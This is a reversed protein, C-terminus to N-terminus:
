ARAEEKKMERFWDPVIEDQVDQKNRNQWSHLKRNKRFQEEALDIEDITLLGKRYWNNLIGKVYAWTSQNQDLAKHMAKLVLDSGIKNCWDKYEQLRHNHPDGFYKCFFKYTYGDVSNITIDNEKTQDQKHKYLPSTKESVVQSMDQTMEHDLVQDMKQSKNQEKNVQTEVENTVQYTVQGAEQIMEQNPAQNPAEDLYKNESVKQSMFNDAKKHHHIIVGKGKDIPTDEEEGQDYAEVEGLNRNKVLSKMEYIPAKTGRSTFTIYGKDRLEARARKFSSNSLGSKYCLVGAAVSFKKLWGTRNNIHMLTHWLNAAHSSLPNTEIEVFFTNIEKLYNM